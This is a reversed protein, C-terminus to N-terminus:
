HKSESLCNWDRSCVAYMILDDSGASWKLWLWMNVDKCGIFIWNFSSNASHIWDYKWQQMFFLTYDHNIMRSHIGTNIGKCRICHITRIRKQTTPYTEFSYPLIHPMKTGLMNWIIKSLTRHPYSKTLCVIGHELCQNGCFSTWNYLNINITIQMTSVRLFAKTLITIITITDAM